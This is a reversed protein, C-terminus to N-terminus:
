STFPRQYGLLGTLQEELQAVSQVAIYCLGTAATAVIRPADLVVVEIGPCTFTPGAPDQAFGLARLGDAIQHQTLIVNM